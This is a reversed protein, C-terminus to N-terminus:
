SDACWWGGGPGVGPIVPTCPCAPADGGWWPWSAPCPFAQSLALLARPQPLLQVSAWASFRRSNRTGRKFYLSEIIKSCSAKCM